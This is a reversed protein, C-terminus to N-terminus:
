CRWVESPSRKGRKDGVAAALGGAQCREVGGGGGGGGSGQTFISSHSTLGALSAASNKPHSTIDSVDPRRQSEGAADVSDNEPGVRRRRRSRTLREACFCVAQLPQCSTLSSPDVEQRLDSM